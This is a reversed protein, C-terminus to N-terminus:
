QRIVPVSEVCYSCARPASSTAGAGTGLRAPIDHQLRDDPAFAADMEPWLMGLPNASWRAVMTDNWAAAFAGFLVYAQDIAQSGSIQWVSKYITWSGAATAVVTNTRLGNVIAAGTQM